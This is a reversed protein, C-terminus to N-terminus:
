NLDGTPKIPLAGLAASLAPTASLETIISRGIDDGWKSRLNPDARVKEIATMFSSSASAFAAPDTTQLTAMHQLYTRMTAESYSALEEGKVAKFAAGAGKILDPAKGVLSGANTDIARRLAEQDVGTHGQMARLVGDRGTAALQHLAANRSASTRSTDKAAADLYTDRDEPKVKALERTLAQLANQLEKSEAGALTARASNIVAEKQAQAGELELKAGLGSLGTAGIAAAGGREVRRAFREKRYHEKAEKRIARGRGFLSSKYADGAARGFGANAKSAWKSALNGIAPVAKISGQIAPIVALLAIAPILAAIIQGLMDGQEWAVSRLISSVLIAGGFITAVIPFVLLMQSFIKWWQKFLAETNPLIWAIFALPAIVIALVILVQRLILILLTVLLALVGALLLTGGAGILFYGAAAATGAALIGGFVGLLSDGGTASGIPDDRIYSSNVQSAIGDFLDRISYGLINSLDVALQSIFFSINVLIAGIVLRPLMKKVGYNTIGAGTLQSFIIVLFVIVFAINAFTRMISWALFTGNDTDAAVLGVDTRLFNESLIAFAGDGLGAMFNIIPCLIWGIGGIACTTAVLDCGDAEPNITCDQDRPIPTEIPTTLELNIGQGFRCAERDAERNSVQGASYVDTFTAECYGDSKNLSGSICARLQTSSEYGNLVCAEAAERGQGIYCAKRLDTNSPYETPCYNLGDNLVGKACAELILQESSNPFVKLVGVEECEDQALRMAYDSSAASLKDVITVCYERYGVNNSAGYIQIPAGREVYSLGYEAVKGDPGYWPKKLYTTDDNTAGSEVFGKVTQDSIGNPYLGLVKVKCTSAFQKYLVYQAAGSMPARYGMYNDLAFGLNFSTEYAKAQVISTFQNRRSDASDNPRHWRPVSSEYQYGMDQLFQKYDTGWGWLQLAPEVIYRCDKEVSKSGDFITFTNEPSFLNGTNFWEVETPDAAGNTGVKTNIDSYMAKDVCRALATYYTASSVEEEITMESIKKAGVNVGGFLSYFNGILLGAVVLAFIGM